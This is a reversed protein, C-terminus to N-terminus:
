REEFRVVGDGRQQSERQIPVPRSQSPPRSQMMPRPAAMSRAPPMPRQMPREGQARPQPRQLGDLNRWPSPGRGGNSAPPPRPPRGDGTGPPPPNGPGHGSPPRHGNGNGNGNGGHPPRPPPRHQHSPYYVPPRYGPYGYVYGGSGYSGYGVGGFGGYGGYGSPYSYQTTPAGHYYGGSGSGVYDYTACGSLGALLGVALFLRMKMATVGEHTHLCSRARANFRGKVRLTRFSHGCKAM